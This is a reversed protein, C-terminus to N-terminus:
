ALHHLLRRSSSDHETGGNPYVPNRTRRRTLNASPRVPAPQISMAGCAVHKMPGLGIPRLGAPDHGHGAAIRAPSPCRGSRAAPLRPRYGRRDRRSGGAGDHSSRRAPVAAARDGGARRRRPRPDGSQRALPRDALYVSRARVRTGSRWCGASRACCHWATLRSPGGVPDVVVDAGRGSTLARVERELDDSTVFAHTYGLALAAQHKDASGTVAILPDAGLHRAVQAMTSALAGTAGHIVVASGSSVGGLDGLATLAAPGNVILAAGSDFSVEGSATSLSAALAAPVAVVSAYGGFRPPTTFAAVRDGLRFDAAGAGIARVEGSVSLGPRLPLAFRIDGRRLIVDILGVAAYRVDITIEGDGAIPDPVEVPQLVAADGYDRIEIALM